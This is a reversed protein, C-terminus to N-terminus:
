RHGALDQRSYIKSYAALNALVKKVYLRTESYPINEIFEDQRMRGNRGVWQKVKNIDANYAAIAPIINGKFQKMNQALILIGLALNKRADLLDQVIQHSSCDSQNSVVLATRPTVQMLGLAGAPSVACSDYASEQRVISWVLM